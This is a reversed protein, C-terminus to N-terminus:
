RLAKSVSPTQARTGPRHLMGQSEPLANTGSRCESDSIRARSWADDRSLDVM